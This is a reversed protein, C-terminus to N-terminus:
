CKQLNLKHFPGKLKGWLPKSHVGWVHQCQLSIKALGHVVYGM